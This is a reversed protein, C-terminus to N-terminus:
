KYTVECKSCSVYGFEQEAEYDTCQWEAQSVLQCTEFNGYTNKGEEMYCTWFMDSPEKTCSIRTEGGSCQPYTSDDITSLYPGDYIEWSCSVLEGRVNGVHSATSCLQSPTLSSGGAVWGYSPASILTCETKYATSMCSSGSNDSEDTTSTYAIGIPNWSCGV